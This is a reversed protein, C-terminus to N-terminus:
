TMRKSIAKYIIYHESVFLEQQCLSQLSCCCVLSDFAWCSHWSDSEGFEHNSKAESKLTMIRNLSKKETSVATCIKHYLMKIQLFSKIDNCTDNENYKLFNMKEFRDLTFGRELCILLLDRFFSILGVDSDCCDASRRWSRRCAVYVLQSTQKNKRWICVLLRPLSSFYQSKLIPRDHCEQESLM